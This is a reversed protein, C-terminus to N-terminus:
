ERMVDKLSLLEGKWSVATKGVDIFWQAKILPEIPQKSRDSISLRQPYERVGALLGAEELDRVFAERCELVTMGAYPGAAPLMRGDEGIVPLLPLGHRQALDFDLQSHA